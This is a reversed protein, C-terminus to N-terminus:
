MGWIDCVQNSWGVLMQCSFQIVAFYICHLRNVSAIVISYM